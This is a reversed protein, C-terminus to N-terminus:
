TITLLPLTLIQWAGAGGESWDVEPFWSSFALRWVTIIPILVTSRILFGVWPVIGLFVLPLPILSYQIGCLLWNYWKADTGKAKFYTCETWALATTLFISLMVVWISLSFTHDLISFVVPFKVGLVFWIVLGFFEAIEVGLMRFFRAHASAAGGLRFMWGCLFALVATALIRFILLIVDLHVSIPTVTRLTTSQVIPVPAEAAIVCPNKKSGCDRSGFDLRVNILGTNRDAVNTQKAQDTFRNSETDKKFNMWLLIVCFLVMMVIAEWQIQGKKNKLM